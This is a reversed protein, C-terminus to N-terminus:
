RAGRKRGERGGERGGKKGDFMDRQGGSFGRWNAFIMLPLDEGNFDRIAQATKYASDPFWVGGAQQINRSPPLSPPLSPPFSPYHTEINM